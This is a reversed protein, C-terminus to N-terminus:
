RIQNYACTFCQLNCMEMQKYAQNKPIGCLGKEKKWDVHIKRQLTEMIRPYKNQKISEKIKTMHKKTYGHKETTYLELLQKINGWFGHLAHKIIRKDNWADITELNEQLWGRLSGIYLIEKQTEQSFM